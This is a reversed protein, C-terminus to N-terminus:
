PATGANSTRASRPDGVDWFNVVVAGVDPDDLLNTARFELRRYSGDRHRFRYCVEVRESPRSLLHALWASLGPRSDPHALEWVDGGVLEEPAFGLIRTVAPSVYRVARDAALLAFGEYSREVIARFLGETARRAAEARKRDDVDTCTGFWRLLRGDLDRLPLARAVFWRYEGDHRRLRYEIEFPTGTRLSKTWAALARTQDDPHVLAKWDWGLLDGMPMGAYDLCQRNLYEIAGDPGAVWVFHPITEIILHYHAADFGCPAAAPEDTM